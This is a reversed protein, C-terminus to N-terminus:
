PTPSAPSHPCGGKPLTPYSLMPAKEALLNTSLPLLPLVITPLCVSHRTLYTVTSLVPRPLAAARPWSSPQSRGWPLVLLM